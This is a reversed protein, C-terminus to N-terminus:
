EEIGSREELATDDDVPAGTVGADGEGLSSETSIGSQANSYAPEQDVPAPMMGTAFGTGPTNTYQDGSSTAFGTGSQPTEFTPSAAGSNPTGSQARDGASAPVAPDPATHFMSFDAEGGTDGAGEGRAQAILEEGNSRHEGAASKVNEIVTEIEGRKSDKSAVTVRRMM